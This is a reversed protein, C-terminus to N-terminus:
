TKTIALNNKAEELLQEFVITLQSQYRQQHKLKLISQAIELPSSLHNRDDIVRIVCLTALRIETKIMLEPIVAAGTGSEVVAKVMESSNLSIIDM